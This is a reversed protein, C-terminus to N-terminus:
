DSKKLKKKVPNKKMLKEIYKKYKEPASKIKVGVRNSMNTSLEEPSIIMWRIEGSINFLEDGAAILITLEKQYPIKHPTILLLGQSSIDATLGVEEISNGSINVLLSKKIRKESREKRQDITKKSM